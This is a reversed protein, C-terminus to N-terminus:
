VGYAYNNAQIISRICKDVERSKADVLFVCEGLPYDKDRGVRGSIQILSAMDFVKHNALAVVVHVNSFTVGRELITTTILHKSEKLQFKKIILEKDKTKSTIVPISLLLSLQNAMKISPVFVMTQHTTFSLRRKIWLVMLLKNMKKLQPVCLPNNFPRQYLTVHAWQKNKVLVLQDKSPTATLYITNGKVSNKAFHQLMENNKYPFADPEDIILLDFYDYYRYLQHTTCVILDATTEKTFGQCVPIVRLTSFVLSLRKALQLVVQRRPIAWGVKLQKSIAQGITEIVLETKGAGCVAEVLVNQHKSKELIEKSAKLQHNTLKFPLKYDEEELNIHRSTESKEMQHIFSICMRCIVQGDREFFAYQNKNKCFTCYHMFLCGEIM